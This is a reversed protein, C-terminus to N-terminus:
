LNRSFKAADKFNNRYLKQLDTFKITRTYNEAQCNRSSGEYHPKQVSVTRHIQTYQIYMAQIHETIMM